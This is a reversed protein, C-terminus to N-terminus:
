EEDEGGEKWKEGERKGGERQGGEKKGNVALFEHGNERWAGRERARRSM